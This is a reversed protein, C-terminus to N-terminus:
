PLVWTDKAGGNQSSNVVLAGEDRAVRTLGGPLVRPEGGEGMFVFPRLDIHRPALENGSVTPHTSLMVMRQAIWDGPSAEVQKRVRAVDEPKAHPAILVGVGGHGARPKLVLDEFEDLARELQDPQALDYTPVSRIVPEEGLYFGIMAEVYAHALKDDAVGTGYQNILGLAGNRLPELLLEGLPDAVRDSDTRRYVVDIPFGERRHRLRGGRVEIDRTEVLPIGLARALWGHEWYASNTEGDTLVAAQPAHHGGSGQPTAAHLADALLDIEGDLPRPLAPPPVDLHRSVAVRAAHIYAFGSPTRLNDELVLWEGSGDRVVDLGAIGIWSGSPPEVGRMQPEYYEATDIVYDPVVGAAVIRREGYVDAVFANLARVRQALGRKVAVWDEATIVRPVPDVHFRADGHLSRFGVGARLLTESVRAELETPGAALVAEVAARAHPRLEGDSAYAEDYTTLVSM